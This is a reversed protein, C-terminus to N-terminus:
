LNAIVEESLGTISAITTVPIGAAKMGVTTKMIGEEKGKAWGEAIGEARGEIRGEEKASDIEDNQVMQDILHAKYAERDSESMSYYQLKKRAESLGPATTNEDIM